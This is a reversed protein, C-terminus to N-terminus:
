SEILSILLVDSMFVSPHFESNNSAKNDLKLGEIFM